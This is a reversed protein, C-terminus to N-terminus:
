IVGATLGASEYGHPCTGDPEVSCGEPCDTEGMMEFDNEDVLHAAAIPSPRKTLM